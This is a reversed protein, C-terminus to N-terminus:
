SKTEMTAARADSYNATRACRPERHTAFGTLVSLLLGIPHLLLLGSGWFKNNNPSRVSTTVRSRIRLRRTPLILGGITRKTPAQIGTHCRASQTRTQWMVLRATSLQIRQQWSM